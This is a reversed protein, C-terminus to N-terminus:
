NLMKLAENYSIINGYMKGSLCRANFDKIRFRANRDKIKNLIKNEALYAEIEQQLRFETDVFYRAWWEDPNNGQQKIHTSEHAIKYDPIENKCYITDGYTFIVGDDWNVGFVEVCKNYIPPKTNHEIKMKKINLWRGM